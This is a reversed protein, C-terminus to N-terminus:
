SKVPIMTAVSTDGYDILKVKLTDPNLKLIDFTM